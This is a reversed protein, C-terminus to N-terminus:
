GPLRLALALDRVVSWLSGRGGGWGGTEPGQVQICICGKGQGRLGRGQLQGQRMKPPKLAETEPLCSGPPVLFYSGFVDTLLFGVIDVQEGM